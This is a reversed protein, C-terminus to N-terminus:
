IPTGRMWRWWHVISRLPGIRQCFGQRALEDCIELAVHEVGWFSDVPALYGGLALSGSAYMRGDGSRAGRLEFHPDVDLRGLPNTGVGGCELLDALLRHDRVDGELGTADIIFDAELEVTAGDRARVTTVVKTGDANPLVSAVEGIQARYWGERRGRALQRQWVKRYATTTGGISKIFDARDKGERSRVADRLQGGGAAKAFTFPQYTFGDGGRSRFRPGGTPGDVFTRFLHVIQTQAGRDRGESLRELVRSSVIGAGRVVVTGPARELSEYVHRHQEYANVVRYFDRYAARYEQLDPLFRLSPYGVGIHVYRSRYAVRTTPKTGPPPTLITFYGGDRRKRVMRVQGPERMDHWGIRDAEREVGRYMYGAKPNFFESLIPETAVTWLPRLTREKVAEELAYSPFGWINDIRSMSDSRLRDEDVIQSARALYEYTHHPYEVPTLVRLQEKPVGAIRLFQVLAFSGLGGGVTVLPVDVIPIGARAVMDDAWTCEEILAETLNGGAAPGEDTEAYDAESPHLAVTLRVAEDPRPPAGVRRPVAPAAPASTDVMATAPAPSRERPRVPPPPPRSALVEVRTDGFGIVDGPRLRTPAAIANGNVTTGNSSGLDTVTLADDTVTLVLHRRSVQIDEM